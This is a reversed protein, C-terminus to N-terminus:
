QTPPAGYLYSKDGRDRVAAWDRHSTSPAEFAIRDLEKRVAEIGDFNVRDPFTLRLEIDRRVAAYATAARRHLEAREPFRWFTQLATLVATVVSVLGAAIRAWDNVDKGLSAFVSTGVITALATAPIGIWYHRRLLRDHASYHAFQSERARKLWQILLDDSSTV